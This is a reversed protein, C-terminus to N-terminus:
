GRLCELMLFKRFEITLEKPYQIITLHWKHMFSANKFRKENLDWSMRQPFKNNKEKPMKHMRCQNDM